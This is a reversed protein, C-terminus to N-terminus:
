ADGKRMQMLKLQAVQGEVMKNLRESLDMNRVDSAKMEDLMFWAMANEETLAEVQEELFGVKEELKAITQRAEKDAM